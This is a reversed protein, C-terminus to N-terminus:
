GYILYIIASLFLLLIVGGTALKAQKVIFEMEEKDIEQKSM